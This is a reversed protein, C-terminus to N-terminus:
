SRPEKILPRKSPIAEYLEELRIAAYDPLGVKKSEARGVTCLGCHLLQSLKLDSLRYHIKVSTIKGATTTGNVEEM